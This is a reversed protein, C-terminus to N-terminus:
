DYAAHATAFPNDRTYSSPASLFSQGGSFWRLIIVILSARRSDWGITPIYVAGENSTLRVCRFFIHVPDCVKITEYYIPNVGEIVLRIGILVVVARGGWRSLKLPILLNRPRTHHRTYM